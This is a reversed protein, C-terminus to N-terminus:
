PTLANRVFESVVGDAQSFVRARGSFSTDKFGSVRAMSPRGYKGPLVWEHRTKM